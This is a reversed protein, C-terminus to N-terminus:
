LVSRLSLCVECAAPSGRPVRQSPLAPRTIHARTPALEARRTRPHPAAGVGGARERTQLSATAHRTPAVASRRIGTPNRPKRKCRTGDIERELDNHTATHTHSGEKRGQDKGCALSYKMVRMVLRRMRYARQENSCDVFCCVVRSHSPVASRVRGGGRSEGDADRERDTTGTAARPDASCQACM